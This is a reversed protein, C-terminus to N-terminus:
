INYPSAAVVFAGVDSLHILARMALKTPGVATSTPFSCATAKMVEVTLEPLAPWDAFDSPRPLRDLQHCKWVEEWSKM